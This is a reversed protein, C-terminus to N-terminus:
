AEDDEDDPEAELEDAGPSALGASRLAARALAVALFISAM